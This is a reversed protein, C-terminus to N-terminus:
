PIDFSNLRRIEHAAPWLVSVQFLGLWISSDLSPGTWFWM